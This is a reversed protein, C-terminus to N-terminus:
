LQASGIGALGMSLGIRGERGSNLFEATFLDLRVDRLYEFVFLFCIVLSGRHRSIALNLSDISYLTTHFWMGKDGHREACFLITLACLNIEITNIGFEDLRCEFRRPQLHESSVFLLAGATNQRVHKLLQQNGIENNRIERDIIGIDPVFEAHTM